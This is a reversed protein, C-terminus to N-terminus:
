GPWVTDPGADARVRAVNDTGRHVIVTLAVACATLTTLKAAPGNCFSCPSLVVGLQWTSFAVVMSTAPWRTAGAPESLTEGASVAVKASLGAPCWPRALASSVISISFSM